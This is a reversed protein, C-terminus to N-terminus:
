EEEEAIPPRGDYPFRNQTNYQGLNGYVRNSDSNYLLPRSLSLGDKGASVHTHIDGNRFTEDQSGITTNSGFGGGNSEHRSPIELDFAQYNGSNLNEFPLQVNLNPTFKGPRDKVFSEIIESNQENGTYTPANSLSSPGVTINDNRKFGIKKIEAPGFYNFSVHGNDFDPNSAPGSTTVLDNFGEFRNQAIKAESQNQPANVNSFTNKFTELKSKGLDGAGYHFLRNERIETNFVLPDNTLNGHRTTM